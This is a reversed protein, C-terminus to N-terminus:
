LQIYQKQLNRKLRKYKKELEYVFAAAQTYEKVLDHKLIHDVDHLINKRTLILDNSNYIMKTSCAAKEISRQLEKTTPSLFTHKDKFRLLENVEKTPTEYDFM